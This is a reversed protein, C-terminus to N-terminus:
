KVEAGSGVGVNGGYNFFVLTYSNMKSTFLGLGQGFNINKFKKM